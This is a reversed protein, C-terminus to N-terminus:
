LSALWAGPPAGYQKRFSRYFRSVDGFGCSFIVGTISHDRRRLLRAAHLLRQHNLYDWFTRGTVKRFLDTFRRRSLGSRMAARDVSWAEYFTDDIERIVGSVREMASICDNGPPLRALLVLTQSAQARVTTPGGLRANTTEFIAHQWCSELTQRAARGLALRRAPLGALLAWLQLLDSEAELFHDNLCLLLLTSPELDTLQHLVGRPVVLISGGEAQTAKQHGIERYNVRGDLVYILKDFPDIRETM